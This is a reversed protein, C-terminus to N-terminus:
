LLGRRALLAAGYKLLTGGAILDQIWPHKKYDQLRQQPNINPNASDLSMVLGITLKDDKMGYVFGGGFSGDVLPYGMTHYVQGPIAKGETLQWTEKVGVSWQQPNPRLKFKKLLDGSVFGKDGFCTVKAYLNDEEPRDMPKEVVQVGIVADGDYVVAHAAFGPFFDVEIGPADKLKEKLQNAMWFVVHSLTLILYGEKLLGKPLVASPVDWTKHNGLVKFGSHTCVGEVPFTSDPADYNPFLRKIIHPNSVAGSLIHGGFEKAKELIAMTFKTGSAKALDVLTHALALNSPSGGVLLIDYELANDPRTAM